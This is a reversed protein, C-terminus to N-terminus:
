ATQSIYLFSVVINTTASTTIMARTDACRVVVEGENNFKAPLSYTSIYSGGTVTQKPMYKTPLSLWHHFVNNSTGTGSANYVYLTLQVLGNMYTASGSVLSGTTGSHGSDRIHDAETVALTDNLDSTYKGAINLNGNFGVSMANSRTDEDAGNGIIFATDNYKAENNRGIVVQNEGAADTYLGCAFSGRGRALTQRGLSYSYPATAATLYGQTASLLGTDTNPKRFGLSYAKAYVQETGYVLKIIAGAPPITNNFFYLAWTSKGRITVYDLAYGSNQLVDDVYVLGYSNHELVWKDAARFTPIYYEVVGTSIFTDTMIFLGTDENLLDEVQFFSRGNSDVMSMSENDIEVKSKGPKGIIVAEKNTGSSIGGVSIAATGSRMIDVKDTIKVGTGTNPNFNADEDHFWAEGAVQDYIFNTAMKKADNAKTTADAAATSIAENKATAIASASEASTILQDLTKNNGISVRSGGGITISGGDAPNFLIYTNNNGIYQQRASNFEINEGFKSVLVGTGDYVYMGDSALLVKYGSAYQESQASGIGNPLVWLGRSTVALHSMIFDDMAENVTLEYYTSLASAQPSVVPTYDGSVSDYTFYVKGEQIATDQTRAFSGHESAWTLVGVVDEVISLQNLAGNAYATALRAEEHATHADEAAQEASAQASDAAGRAVNADAIASASSQQATDAAAKAADASVQATLVNASIGSLTSTLTGSSVSETENAEATAKVAQISTTFGGTYSHTLLHCPVLPYDAEDTETADNSAEDEPPQEVVMAVDDGELRPDGYSMTLNCPRYKYGVLSLAYPVFLPSTMYKSVTILNVHEADPYTYGDTSTTEEMYSFDNTVVSGYTEKTLKVITLQVYVATGSYVLEVTFNTKGDETALSYIQETGATGYYFSVEFEESEDTREGGDNYSFAFSGTARIESGAQLGSVTITKSDSVIVTNTAATNKVTYSFGTGAIQREAEVTAQETKNCTVGFIEFDEEEMVPLDRMVDTDLTLTATRTFRRITINGDATDTAYGGVVGALAQLGEYVTLGDVSEELEYQTNIGSDFTITLNTGFTTNVASAMAGAINALSQVAPASFPVGTRTITKGYATIKTAYTTKEVESVIFYGLTVYEYIDTEVIEGDIEEEQTGVLVGVRAEVELGKVNEALDMLEAELTNSVVGGVTFGETNGCSGKTINMSKIEGNLETGNMLIKADYTRNDATLAQMFESSFSQGNSNKTIM